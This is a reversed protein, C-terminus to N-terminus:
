EQICIYIYIYEKPMRSSAFALHMRQAKHESMRQKEQKRTIDHRQHFSRLGYLSDRYGFSVVRIERRGCLYQLFRSEM